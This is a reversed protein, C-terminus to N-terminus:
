NFLECTLKYGYKIIQQSYKYILDKLNNIFTSKQKEPQNWNNEEIDIGNSQVIEYSMNCYKYVYNNPLRDFYFYKMNQDSLKFSQEFQQLSKTKFDHRIINVKEWNIPKDNTDLDYNIVDRGDDSIVLANIENFYRDEINTAIPDKDNFTFILSGNTNSYQSKNGLDIQINPNDTKVRGFVTCFLLVGDLQKFLVLKNVSIDLSIDLYIYMNRLATDKPLQKFVYAVDEEQTVSFVHFFSRFMDFNGSMNLENKLIQGREDVEFPVPHAFLQLFIGIM